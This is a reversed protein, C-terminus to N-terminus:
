MGAVSTPAFPLPKSQFESAATSLGPAQAFTLKPSLVGGAILGTAIATRRDITM